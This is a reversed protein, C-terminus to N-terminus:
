EDFLGLVLWLVLCLLYAGSFLVFVANIFEHFSM